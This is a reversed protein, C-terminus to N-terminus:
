RSSRTSGRSRNGDYGQTRKTYYLVKTPKKFDGKTTTLPINVYHDYASIELAVFKSDFAPYSVM